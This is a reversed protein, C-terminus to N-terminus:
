GFIKSRLRCLALLFGQTSDLGNLPLTIGLLSFKSVKPFQFGISKALEEGRSWTGGGVIGGMADLGDSPDGLVECIRAVQGVQSSGPFLPKFNVLEAMITGLAWM